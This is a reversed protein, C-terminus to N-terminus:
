CDFTVRTFSIFVLSPFRCFCFLDFWSVCSSCVFSFYAVNNLNLFDDGLEFMCLNHADNSHKKVYRQRIIKSRTAEKTWTPAHADNGSQWLKECEACISTDSSFVEFADFIRCAFLKSSVFITQMKKRSPPEFNRVHPIASSSFINQFNEIQSFYRFFFACSVVVFSLCAWLRRVVIRSVFPTMQQRKKERKKRKSEFELENLRDYITLAIFYFNLKLPMWWIWSSKIQAFEADVSLSDLFFFAVFIFVFLFFFFFRRSDSIWRNNANERSQVSGSMRLWCKTTMDFCLFQVHKADEDIGRWTLWFVGFAFDSPSARFFLVCVLFLHLSNKRNVVVFISKLAYIFQTCKQTTKDSREDVCKRDIGENRRGDEETRM